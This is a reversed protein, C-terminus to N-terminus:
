SRRPAPLQRARRRADGAAPGVKRVVWWNAERRVVDEIAPMDHRPATVFHTPDSHVEYYEPLTMVIPHACDRASCECVFSIASAHATPLAELLQRNVDRFDAEIEGGERQLADLAAPDHLPAPTPDLEAEERSIREPHLAVEELRRASALMAQLLERRTARDLEVDLLTQVGGIVATLPNAIRHRVLQTYDLLARSYEAQAHAAGRREHLLSRRVRDSALVIVSLAVLLVGDMIDVLLPEDIVRTRVFAFDFARLMCFAVGTWMWPGVSRDAPRIRLLTVAVALWAAAVLVQLALSVSVRGRDGAAADRM